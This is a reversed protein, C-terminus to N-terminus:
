SILGKNARLISFKIPQNEDLVKFVQIYDINKTQMERKHFKLLYEIADDRKIDFYFDSVEGGVVYKKIKSMDVNLFLSTGLVQVKQTTNCMESLVNNKKM